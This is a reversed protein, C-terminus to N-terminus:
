MGSKKVKEEGRGSEVDEENDKNEENKPFLRRPMQPLKSRDVHDDPTRCGVGLARFRSVPSVDRVRSNRRPSRPTPNDTTDKWPRWISAKAPTSLGVPENAVNLPAPIDAAANDPVMTNNSPSCENGASIAYTFKQLTGSGNAM